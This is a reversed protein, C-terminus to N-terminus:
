HGPISVFVRGAGNEYAWVQPQPAGDEESTALLTVNEVNGTLLWYSEDYLSMDTMNRMIPHNTNQVKLSLPGHRYRINGGQSALGIRRSVDAVREDGNVAWHIYVAGKGKACYADLKSQREDNWTGKQFFILVDATDLQTQSPFDWAMQVDTRDASALLQGWQVQWAPYDHEGPGHDKNGAVLVIKLDRKATSDEPAGKLLAALEAHSRLPPAKLPSDMPMHPAATLLFTMLDRLEEASLKEHLGAPMISTQASKMEEISAKDIPTSKGTADGLMLGGKETRLVGTLVSGDDMRITHGIYDPNIAFSPNAIDRLVSAYDRHILNSLDPGIEGGNRNISHCKSCGLKESAFLRAGLGWNGGNLEPISALSAPKADANANSRVWPMVFRRLPIARQRSDENTSSCISLNPVTGKSTKLSVSLDSSSKQDSNNSV